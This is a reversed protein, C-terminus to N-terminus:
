RGTVNFGLLLIVVVMLVFSVGKWFVVPNREILPLRTKSLFEKNPHHLDYVFESLDDHRKAPNPHV